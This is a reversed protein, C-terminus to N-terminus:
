SIVTISILDALRGPTDSPVPATSVNGESKPITQFVEAVRWEDGENGEERRRDQKGRGRRKRLPAIGM